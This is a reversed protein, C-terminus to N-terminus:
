KTLQAVLGRASERFLYDEKALATESRLIEGSGVDVLRLSILYGEGGRSVTGFAALEAGSVRALEAATKDESLGSYALKKEALVFDLKNREVLRFAGTKLLESEVLGRVVEAEAATVGDGASFAAVALTAGRRLPTKKANRSTKGTGGWAWGATMRHAAGLDGYPTFAYDLSFTGLKLGFGGAFAGMFGQDSYNKFNLGARVFFGSVGGSTILWEGAFALYPAHDSPMRGEAFLNFDPSYKWRLGAGLEAPLPAKESGLKLPPGFNRLAIAYETGAGPSRGLIVGADAAFSDGSAEALRSRLYKLNLGFDAGGFSRAWGAGFAADYAAIDTGSGTGAGDINELGQSADNYLLGASFAGARTHDSLVLGTRSAGQLLAEYSVAAAIGGPGSAQVVGAPNLFFSDVGGAALGCGGLADIRASPPVKLFGAATTGRAGDSFAGPPLFGGGHAAAACLAALPVCLIVPARKM